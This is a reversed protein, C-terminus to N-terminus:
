QRDDNEDDDDDADYSSVARYGDDDDSDIDTMDADIECEEGNFHEGIGHNRKDIFFFHDFYTKIKRFLKEASRSITQIIMM